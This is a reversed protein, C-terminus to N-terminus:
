PTAAEAEPEADNPHLGRLRDLMLLEEFGGVHIGDLFIQPVTQRGSRAMMPTRDYSVDIEEYDVGRQDLLRKARVCSSCTPTSYIEARAM